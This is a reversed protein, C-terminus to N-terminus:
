QTSKTPPKPRLTPPRAVPPNRRAGQPPLVAPETSLVLGEATNASALLQRVWVQNTVGRVANTFEFQLRINPAIWISNRGGGRATGDSWSFFFPEKRHLKFDVVIKVHELTRDDFPFAASALGYQLTGM